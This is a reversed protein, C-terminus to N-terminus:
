FSGLVHEIKDKLAEVTFPKVLYGSVGAQHAAAISEPKADATVMIFPTGALRPDRRMDRVLDLGSKPQMNWDSLVLGYSGRRLLALAEDGDHAEDVQQLDLKKLLNKMIRRMAPFDDVILIRLNRDVAM